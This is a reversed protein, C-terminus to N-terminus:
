LVKALLMVALFMSTAGLLVGRLFRNSANQKCAHHLEHHPMLVGVGNM